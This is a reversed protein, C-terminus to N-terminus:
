PSVGVPPVSFPFHLGPLLIARRQDICINGSNKKQKCVTEKKIQGKNLTEAKAGSVNQVLYNQRKLVGGHM